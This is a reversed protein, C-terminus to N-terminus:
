AQSLNLAVTSHESHHTHIHDAAQAVCHLHESHTLKLCIQNNPMLRIMVNNLGKPGYNFQPHLPAPLSYESLPVQRQVRAAVCSCMGSCWIDTYLFIGYNVHKLHHSYDDKPKKLTM